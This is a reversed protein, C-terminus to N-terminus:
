REGRTLYEALSRAINPDDRVDGAARNCHGCLFGRVCRGCSVSGPCCTHDHDVVLQASLKGVRASHIKVVIDTGCVECGPDALLRRAMEHPVHHQRLRHILHAIPLRCGDCIYPWIRDTRRGRSRGCWACLVSRASATPHYGTTKCETSCYKTGAGDIGIVFTNGCGSAQCIRERNECARSTCYLGYERRRDSWHAPRECLKCRPVDNSPADFLSPQTTVM